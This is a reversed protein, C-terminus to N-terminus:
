VPVRESVLLTNPGHLSFSPHGPYLYLATFTSLTAPKKQALLEVATEFQIGKIKFVAGPELDYVPLMTADDWPHSITIYTM